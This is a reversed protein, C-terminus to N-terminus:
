GFPIDDPDPWCSWVTIPRGSRAQHRTMRTGIKRKDTLGNVVMSAYRRRIALTDPVELVTLMDRVDDASWEEMGRLRSQIAAVIERQSGTKGAEVSKIAAVHREVVPPAFLPLDTPARKRAHALEEADSM